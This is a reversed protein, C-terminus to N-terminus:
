TLHASLIEKAYGTLDETKPIEGVINNLLWDISIIDKPTLVANDETTVPGTQSNIRGSFVHISGDKIQNRLYNVLKITQPPIDRSYFLDIAESNM